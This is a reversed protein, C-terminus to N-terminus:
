RRNAPSIGNTSTARGAPPLRPLVTSNLRCPRSGASASFFHGQAITQRVPSPKDAVAFSTSPEAKYGAPVVGSQRIDPQLRFAAISATETRPRRGIVLNGDAAILARVACGGKSGAWRDRVFNYFPGLGGVVENEADILRLVTTSRHAGGHLETKQEVQRAAVVILVAAGRQRPHDSWWCLCLAPLCPGM